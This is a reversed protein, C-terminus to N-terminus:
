PMPDLTRGVMLTMARRIPIRARGHGGGVWAYGDLLKNEAAHLQALDNVPDAQLNPRPPHLQVTQEATLRAPHDHREERFGGVLLLMLGIMAAISGGLGITLWMMLRASMDRTEHGQEVAADSAPTSAEGRGSAKDFRQPAPAPKGSFPLTAAVRGLLRRIRGARSGEAADRM